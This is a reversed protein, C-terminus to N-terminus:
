RCRLFKSTERVPGSDQSHLITKNFGPHKWCVWELSNWVTKEANFKLWKMAEVTTWASGLTEWAPLLGQCQWCSSLISPRVFTINFAHRFCSNRSWPPKRCWILPVGPFGILIGDRPQSNQPSLHLISHNSYSKSALNMCNFQLTTLKHNWSSWFKIWNSHKLPLEVSLDKAWWPCAPLLYNKCFGLNTTAERKEQKRAQWTIM